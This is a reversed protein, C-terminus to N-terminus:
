TMRNLAARRGIAAALDDPPVPKVLYDTSDLSAALARSVQDTGGTVVIPRAHKLEARQQPSLSPVLGLDFVVVEGSRVPRWETGSEAEYGLRRLGLATLEGLRADDDLVLVTVLNFAATEARSLEALAQSVNVLLRDVSLAAGDGDALELEAQLRALVSRLRHLAGALEPSRSSGTGSGV